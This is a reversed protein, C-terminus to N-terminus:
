YLVSHTEQLQLLEKSALGVEQMVVCHWLGSKWLMFRWVATSVEWRMCLCVLCLSLYKCIGRLTVSEREGAITKFPDDFSGSSSSSCPLTSPLFVACMHKKCIGASWITHRQLLLLDHSSSAFTTFLCLHFPIHCFQWIHESSYWMGWQDKIKPKTWARTHWSHQGLYWVQSRSFLFLLTIWKVTLCCAQLIAM